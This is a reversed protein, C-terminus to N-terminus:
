AATCSCGARNGVYPVHGTRARVVASGYIAVEGAMAGVLNPQREVTLACMQHRGM